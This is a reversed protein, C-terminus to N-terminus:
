SKRTAPKLAEKADRMLRQTKGTGKTQGKYM